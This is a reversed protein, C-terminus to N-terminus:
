LNLISVELKEKPKKDAGSTSQRSNHKSKSSKSEPTAHRAQPGDGDSDMDSDSCGSSNSMNSSLATSNLQSRDDPKIVAAMLPEPQDELNYQIKGSTPENAVVIPAAPQLQSLSPLEPTLSNKPSKPTVASASDKQEADSDEDTKPLAKNPSLNDSCFLLYFFYMLTVIYEHVIVDFYWDFNPYNILKQDAGVHLPNM